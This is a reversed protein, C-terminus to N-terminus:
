EIEINVLPASFQDIANPRPKYWTRYQVPVSFDIDELITTTGLEAIPIFISKEPGSIQKYIIDIGIEDASSSGGWTLTLKNGSKTKNKLSHNILTEQYHDGYVNILTEFIISRHGRNDHSYFFFTHDGEGIKENGEGIMVELMDLPEHEPVPVVISDRKQNWLIHLEKARPDTLWYQILVRERGSLHKVSDVRGIYTKEGDQLYQDHMDNM